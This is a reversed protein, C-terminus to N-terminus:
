RPKGEPLRRHRAHEIPHADRFPGQLPVFGMSPYAAETSAVADPCYPSALQAVGQLRSSGPIALGREPLAAPLHHGRCRPERMPERSTSGRKASRHWPPRHPPGSRHIPARGTLSAEPHEDDRLRASRCSPLPRPSATRSSTLPIRRLTHVADRPSLFDHVPAPAQSPKGSFAAFGVIPLPICCARSKRASCVTSTTRFWSPPVHKATTGVPRHSRRRERSHVSSVIDISPHPSDWSLRSPKELRPL